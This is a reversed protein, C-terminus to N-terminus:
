DRVMLSTPRLMQEKGSHDYYDFVATSNAAWGVHRKIIPLSPCRQVLETVGGRRLSYGAYLTPDFGLVDRVVDKFRNIFQPRTVAWFGPTDEGRRPVFSVFLPAKDGRKQLPVMGALRDLWRVLDLEDERAALAIHRYFRVKKGPPILFEVSRDAQIFVHGWKLRGCVHDETRLCLFFAIICECAFVVDAPNFSDLSAIIKQLEQPALAKSRIVVDATGLLRDLGKLTQTYATNRPLPGVGHATWLHQVASFYSRVSQVTHNTCFYVAALCLDDETVQWPDLDFLQCFNIFTRHSSAYTVSSSRAIHMRQCLKVM